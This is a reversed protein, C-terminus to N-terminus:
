QGGRKRIFAAVDALVEDAQGAAIRQTRATMAHHYNYLADILRQQMALPLPHRIERSM